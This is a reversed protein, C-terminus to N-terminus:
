LSEPEDSVEEQKHLRSPKASMSDANLKKEAPYVHSKPLKQCSITSELRTSKLQRRIKLYWHSSTTLKFDIFMVGSSLRQMLCGCSKFITNDLQAATTEALTPSLFFSSFSNLLFVFTRPFLFIVLM